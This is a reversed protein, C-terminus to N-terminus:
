KTPIGPKRLGFIGRLGKPIGNTRGCYFESNRMEYCVSSCHEVSLLMSKLESCSPKFTLLLPEANLLLARCHVPPSVFDGPPSLLSFSPARCNASPARCIAFKRFKCFNVLMSLNFELIKRFV